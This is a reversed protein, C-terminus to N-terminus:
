ATKRVRRRIAVVGLGAAAFMAFVVSAPEPVVTLTGAVFNAGIDVFVADSFSLPLPQTNGDFIWSYVGPAIGTADFTVTALTGNTDPQSASIGRGAVTTGGGILSSPLGSAYVFGATNFEIDTIIPGGAGITMYLDVGQTAENASTVTLTVVQGSTPLIDATNGSVTPVAMAISPVLLLLVALALLVRRQM